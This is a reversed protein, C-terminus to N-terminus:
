YPNIKYLKIIKNIYGKFEKEITKATGYEKIKGKYIDKFSVEVKTKKTEIAERIEVLNKVKDNLFVGYNNPPLIAESSEHEITMEKVGLKNAIINILSNVTLFEDNCM